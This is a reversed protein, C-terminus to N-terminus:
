RGEAAERSTEQLGQSAAEAEAGKRPCGSEENAKCEAYVQYGAENAKHKETAEEHMKRQKAEEEAERKAGALTKVPPETKGEQALQKCQSEAYRRLTICEELGKQIHSSYRSAGGGGCGALGIGMVAAGIVLAVKFGTM